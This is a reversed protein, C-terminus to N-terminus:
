AKGDLALEALRSKFNEFVEPGQPEPLFVLAVDSAVIMSGPRLTKPNRRIRAVEWKKLKKEVFDFSTLKEGWKRIFRATDSDPITKLNSLEDPRYNSKYDKIWRNERQFKEFVRRGFLPLMFSYESSSFVDKLEIELSRDTVFYNLCIRDVIKDAYRRMGVIHVLFTVLTRGTFIKGSRLVVLLDLDSKKDANKMAMRGTVAVMRVFPVFRLAWVMRRVLGFKRESIKNREIRQEALERRGKLFYYGCYEETYKKLEDSELEKIIDLFETEEQNSILYKWIEFSTLPYDLIDYYVITSLINKTLNSSM